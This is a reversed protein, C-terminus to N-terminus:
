SFLVRQTITGKHLALVEASSLSAPSPLMLLPPRGRRTTLCVDVGDGM